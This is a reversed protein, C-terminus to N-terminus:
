SGDELKKIRKELDVLRTDLDDDGLQIKTTTIEATNINDGVFNPAIVGRNFYLNDSFLEITPSEDDAMIIQETKITTTDVVDSTTNKSIISNAQVSDSDVAKAITIKNAEFSDAITKGVLSIDNKSIEIKADDQNDDTKKKNDTVSIELKEDYFSIPKKSVDKLRTLIYVKNDEDVSINVETKKKPTYYKSSETYEPLMVVGDGYSCWYQKKDSTEVLWGNSYIKEKDIKVLTGTLNKSGEEEDTNNLHGKKTKSSAFDQFKNRFYKNTPTYSNSKVM